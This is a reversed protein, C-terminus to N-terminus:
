TSDYKTQQKVQAILKSIEAKFVQKIYLFFRYKHFIFRYMYFIIHFIFVVHSIANTLSFITAHRKRPSSLLAFHKCYDCLFIKLSLNINLIENISYALPICWYINFYFFSFLFLRPINKTICFSSHEYKECYLFM